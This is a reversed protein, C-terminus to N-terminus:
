KRGKYEEIKKYFEILKGNSRAASMAITYRDRDPLAWEEDNLLSLDSVVDRKQKGTLEWFEYVLAKENVRYNNGVPRENKIGKVKETKEVPRKMKLSSPTILEIRHIDVEDCGNFGSPFTVYKRQSVSTELFHHGDSEKDVTLKILSYAPEWSDGNREPNTAGVIVSMGYDDVIVRQEHEHGMLRLEAGNKLGLEFSSDGDLLWSQPHHLLAVNVSGAERKLNSQFGGLYLSGESDDEGSFFTSTLGHIKLTYGDCLEMDSQWFPNASSINCGYRAAFDNYADMPRLLLKSEDPDRLAKQFLQLRKEESKANLIRDRCFKIISKKATDRHVDHNGPVMYVNQADIDLIKTLKDLWLKAAAYENEHAKFAIDGTLLIADVRLSSQEVQERIDDVLHERITHDRSTREDLCDPECFHIDSLHLLHLM